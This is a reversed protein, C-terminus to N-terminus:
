RGMLCADTELEESESWRARVTYKKGYDFSVGCSDEDINHWVATRGSVSSDDSSKVDFITAMRDEVSRGDAGLIVKADIVYGSLTVDASATAPCTCDSEEQPTEPVETLEPVPSPVPVDLSMASLALMNLAVVSVIM